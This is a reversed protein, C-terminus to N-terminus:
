RHQRECCYTRCLHVADDIHHAAIVASEHTGPEYEPEPHIVAAILAYHAYPNDSLLVAAPADDADEPRLIVAAAKTSSLQEKFRPNSFFSLSGPGANHLGAVNNIVVDGDGILECGFRNALEGLTVPM